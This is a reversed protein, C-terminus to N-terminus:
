LWLVKISFFSRPINTAAFEFNICASSITGALHPFLVYPLPFWSMEQDNLKRRQHHEMAVLIEQIREKPSDKHFFKNFVAWNYGPFLFLVNNVFDVHYYYSRKNQFRNTLIYYLSHTNEWIIISFMQFIYYKFFLVKPNGRKNIIYM